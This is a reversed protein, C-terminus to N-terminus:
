CGPEGSDHRAGGLPLALDPHGLGCLGLPVERQGVGRADCVRHGANVRIALGGKTIGVLSIQHLGDDIPPRYQHEPTHTGQRPFWRHFALRDQEPVEGVDITVVELHPHRMGLLEDLRHHADGWGEPPDIWLANGCGIADLDLLEIDWDEMIILVPGPHGDGGSQQVGQLKLALGQLPNANNHEPRASRPNSTDPQQHAEPSMVSIDVCDITLPDNMKPALIEIRILEPNRYVHRPSGHRVRHLPRIHEDSNEAAIQQARLHQGGHGRSGYHKGQRIRNWLDTGLNGEGYAIVKDHRGTAAIVPILNVVHEAEWKDETPARSTRAERILSSM